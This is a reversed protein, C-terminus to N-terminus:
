NYIKTTQRYYYVVISRFRRLHIQAEMAASIEDKMREYQKDM